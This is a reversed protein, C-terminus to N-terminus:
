LFNNRLQMRGAKRREYDLRKANEFAQPLMGSFVQAKETYSFANCVDVTAFAVVTEELQDVLAGTIDIFTGDPNINEAPAIRQLRNYYHTIGVEAINPIPYLHLFGGSIVYWSPKEAFVTLYHHVERVTVRPLEYDAGHNWVMITSLYDEPLPYASVSAITSIPEFVENGLFPHNIQMEEFGKKIAENTRVIAAPDPTGNGFINYIVRERIRNTGM